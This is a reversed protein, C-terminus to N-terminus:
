KPTLTTINRKVVFDTDISVIVVLYIETLDLRGGRESNTRNKSEKITASEGGCESKPKLFELILSGVKHSSGIYQVINADLQYNCTDELDLCDKDVHSIVM